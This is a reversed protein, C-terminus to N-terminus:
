VADNSFYEGCAWTKVSWMRVLDIAQIEQHPLDYVGHECINSSNQSIQALYLQIVVKFFEFPQFFLYGLRAQVIAFFLSIDRGQVCGAGAGFCFLGFGPKGPFVPFPKWGYLLSFPMIHVFQCSCVSPHLACLDVASIVILVNWMDAQLNYDWLEVFDGAEAWDLLEDPMIWVLTAALGLLMLRFLRNWSFFSSM